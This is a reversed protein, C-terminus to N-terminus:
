IADAVAEAIALCSTLGPSEIGFLNVLGKLKHVAETQILFDGGVSGAGGLKPRLGSYDPQLKCEDLGPWYERVRSAFADRKSADVTYDLNDLDTIAKADSWEVDPGFKVGGALDKTLHVGLGGVEPVPYILHRFPSRGAYSFYSGKAYLPQPVLTQDFTDVKQVFFPAYLGAANVVAAAEVLADQGCLELVFKESSFSIARVSTNLVLEAGAAQADHLMAVMLEHSNVIGTSPSHIAGVARVEPELAHLQSQGLLQLDDVGNQRAHSLIDQLSALQEDNKAVILKGCREYPINNSQLYEYLLAKGRVCMQAKISGKPYYIGAHIVESNRSSTGMGFQKEKEILWVERGRLALERAVAIGVVGAGVVVVDLKYREL